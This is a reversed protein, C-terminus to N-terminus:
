NELKQLEAEIITKVSEYPLAGRVPTNNVFSGPTGTVGLRVGEAQQSAVKEEYKRSSVCTDYQALNVGIQGAVERYFATGLRAQNAFMADAFQWFGDSGKQEGVCESAEASSQANPHIQTLPFHRYVWRVQDGYEKLVQKITPHFRQCFPCEFDSYEVITIPASPNGRIYDDKTVVPAGGGTNDSSKTPEGVQAPLGESSVTPLGGGSLISLSIMGGAVLIAAPTFLDKYTNTNESM